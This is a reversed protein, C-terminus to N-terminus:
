LCQVKESLTSHALNYLTWLPYNSCLLDSCGIEGGGTHTFKFFSGWNCCSQSGWSSKQLHHKSIDKSQHDWAKFLPWAAKTPHFLSHHAPGPICGAGLMWLM